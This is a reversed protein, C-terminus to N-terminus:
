TCAILFRYHIKEEESRQQLQVKLQNRWGDIVSNHKLLKIQKLSIRYMGCFHCDIDGCYGYLDMKVTKQSIINEGCVYCRPM